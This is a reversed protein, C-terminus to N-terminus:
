YLFDSEANGLPCSHPCPALHDLVMGDHFIYKGSGDYGAIIITLASSKYGAHHGKHGSNIYGLTHGFVLKVNKVSSDALYERLMDADVSFSRIDSDNKEAHISYLYSAIMANADLIPIFESGTTNTSHSGWHASYRMDSRLNANTESSLGANTNSTNGTITPTTQQSDKRCGIIVLGMCFAAIFVKSKM